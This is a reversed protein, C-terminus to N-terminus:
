EQDGKQENNRYSDLDFVGNKGKAGRHSAHILGAVCVVVGLVGFACGAIFRLTEM